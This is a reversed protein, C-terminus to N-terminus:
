DPICKIEIKRELNIKLSGGTNVEVTVTGTGSGQDGPGFLGSSPCRLDGVVESLGGATDQNRLGSGGTIDPNDVTATISEVSIDGASNNELTLLVRDNYQYDACFGFFCGGGGDADASQLNIPRGEPYEIGLFADQDGAVDIAVGRNAETRDFAGSGVIILVAGSVVMVMGLYRM